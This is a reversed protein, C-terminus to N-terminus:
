LNRPGCIGAKEVILQFRDGGIGFANFESEWCSSKDDGAANLARLKENLHKLDGEQWKVTLINKPKREHSLELQQDRAARNAEHLTTFVESRLLPQYVRLLAQTKDDISESDSSEAAPAILKVLRLVFVTSAVFCTRGLDQPTRNAFKSVYDRQVWIKVFHEKYPNDFPAFSAKCILCGQEDRTSTWDALTHRLDWTTAERLRQFLTEVQLNAENIDTFPRLIIGVEKADYEDQEDSWRREFVSYEFYPEAQESIHKPTGLVPKEGDASAELTGSMPNM